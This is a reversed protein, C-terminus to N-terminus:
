IKKTKLSNTVFFPIFGVFIGAIGYLICLSLSCLKDLAAYLVHVTIVGVFLM